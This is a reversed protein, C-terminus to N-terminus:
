QWQITAPREQRQTLDSNTPAAHPVGLSARRKQAAVEKAQQAEFETTKEKAIQLMAATSYIEVAQRGSSVWHWRSDFFGGRGVAVYDDSPSVSLSHIELREQESPSLGEPYSWWLTKTFGTMMLEPGAIGLMEQESDILVIDHGHGRGVDKMEGSSLDWRWARELDQVLASGDKMLCLSGIENEKTYDGVPRSRELVRQGTGTDWLIVAAKYDGTIVKGDPTALITKIEDDADMVRIQADEGIKWLRLHDGCASVFQSTKALFALHTVPCMQKWVGEVDGSIVNWAVIQKNVGGSVLYKGDASFALSMVVTDQGQFRKLEKGTSVDWLRVTKDGSASALTKGDPSFQVASIGDTHGELEKALILSKTKKDDERRQSEIAAERQAATMRTHRAKAPRTAPQTAPTTTAIAPSQGHSVRWSHGIGWGFVACTAL